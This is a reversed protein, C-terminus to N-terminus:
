GSSLAVEGPAIDLDVGRVAKIHGFNKHLGTLRVADGDLFTGAGAVNNMM